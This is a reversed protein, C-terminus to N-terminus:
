VSAEDIPLGVSEDQKAEDMLKRKQEGRVLLISFCVAMAFTGMFILAKRMNLPPHADPGARLAGASLVFVISLLNGGFWLLASSGGANRTLECALELSVPLMTISCVGIVTVIVFLAATNHPRVAWILSLWGVAIFPVFVKGLRALHHTFYRDIIPATVIAMLMGSLLLCAGMFGSVDASYGMPQLIQASLFAFTTTNANLLSFILLIIVFDFRERLSMYAEPTVKMGLTARCLSTLSLTEKSAAYTPPVPPAKGILLVLPTVATSMVGLVLISQRTSGVLPSLLQGVAGGFPNSIAILM